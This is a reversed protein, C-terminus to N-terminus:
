LGTTGGRSSGPQPAPSTLAGLLAIVALLALVIHAARRLRKWFNM